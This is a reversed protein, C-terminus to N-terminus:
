RAGPRSLLYDMRYHAYPFHAPQVIKEGELGLTKAIHDLEDASWFKGMDNRQQMMQKVLRLMKPISNYFVFWKDRDPVDGLYLAGRSGIRQFIQAIVAQGQQPTEFYQFSFCLTSKTFGGAFAGTDPFTLKALDLADGCIFQVSSSAYHENAYAILSSSFDVGVVARCHKALHSTFMGNGCCVDLLVDDPGLGLKSAIYAAFEALREDEQKAQGGKRGVQLYPDLATGQEQWYAKWNM